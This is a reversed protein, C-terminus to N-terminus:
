GAKLPVHERFAVEGANGLGYGQPHHVVTHIGDSLNRWHSESSVQVKAPGTRHANERQVKLETPTFSTKPGIHPFAALFTAGVAITAVAAALPWPRRWVAAIM